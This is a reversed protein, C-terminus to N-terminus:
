LNTVHRHWAREAPFESYCLFFLFSFPHDFMCLYKHGTMDLRINLNTKRLPGYILAIWAPCFFM